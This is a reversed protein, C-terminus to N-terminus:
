PVALSVATIICITPSRVGTQSVQSSGQDGPKLIAWDWAMALHHCIWTERKGKRENVGESFM